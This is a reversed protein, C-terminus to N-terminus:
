LDEMVPKDAIFEAPLGLKNFYDVMAICAFKETSYHTGGLINIRHERAFEHASKSFDNKTSIGTLFTNAGAAATEKLISEQNGGGAVVAVIGDKIGNDGYQYM